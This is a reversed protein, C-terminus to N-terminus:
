SQKRQFLKGSVILHYIRPFGCFCGIPEEDTKEELHVITNNLLIDEFVDHSYKDTVYDWQM